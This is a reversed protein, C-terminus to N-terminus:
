PQRRAEEPQTSSTGASKRANVPLGSKDSRYSYPAPRPFRQSPKADRTDRPFRSPLQKVPHCVCPCDCETQIGEHPWLYVRFQKHCLICSVGDTLGVEFDTNRTFIVHTSFYLQEIKVPRKVMLSEM